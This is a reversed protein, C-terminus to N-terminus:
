KFQFNKLDGFNSMLLGELSMIYTEQRSYGKGASRNFKVRNFFLIFREFTPYFKIVKKLFRNKVKM